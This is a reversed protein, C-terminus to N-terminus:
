EPSGGLDNTELHAKLVNMMSKISRNYMSEMLPKAIKPVNLESVIKFTTGGEVPDLIYQVVLPFPGTANKYSIKRSPEYVTVEFTNIAPPVTNVKERWRTGVGIPGETVKTKEAVNKKWLPENEFHALFTFVNEHSCHITIDNEFRIM